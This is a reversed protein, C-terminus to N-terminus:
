KESKYVCRFGIIGKTISPHDGYRASSRFMNQDADCWAGGRIVKWSGSAPGGPNERASVKYYKNDYWDSCWENVNGAMDMVGYPSRGDPFSGAPVTGRNAMMIIMRNVLDPRNMKKNNCKNPDWKDGWPYERQETGRAAKEWEAETPLSKGAWKAYARADNWSVEVVPYNAKDPSYYKMWNGEGSYGTEEVFRKYQGYTVPYKDIYYDDLFVEHVPKEDINANSGMNFTGKPIFIMESNDKPHIISQVPMDKMMVTPVSPTGDLHSICDICYKVNDKVTMDSPHFLKKCRNCKEGEQPEDSTVPAPNYKYNQLAERMERATSFRNSPKKEMAKIVIKELEESCNTIISSIPAFDYPDPLLGTLLHYMTVGLSYIDSRPGSKGVLQEPATYSPTGISTKQTKSEVQMTRAIGFDIIVTRDDSSCIMINSPKIDRYIIPPNQNHLYDLVDLVEIAYKVVRREPLGPYGERKLIEELDSGYIFEMVLYYRDHEAFYDIVVPLNIHSLNALIFAEEQFRKLAYARDEPKEYAGFMEKVACDRKLRVDRAKYVSGMGGSKILSLIEYRRDLLIGLKLNEKIYKGVLKNGCESCFKSTDRNECGCDPCFNPM